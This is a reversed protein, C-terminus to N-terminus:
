HQGWNHTGYWNKNLNVKTFKFVIGFMQGVCDKGGVSM